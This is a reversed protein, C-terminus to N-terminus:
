APHQKPRFLGSLRSTKKLETTAYVGILKGDQMDPHFVVYRGSGYEVKIKEGRSLLQANKEDSLMNLVETRVTDTRFYSTSSKHIKWGDENIIYALSVDKRTNDIIRSIYEDRATIAKILTERDSFNLLKNEKRLTQITKELESKQYSINQIQEYANDEKSGYEQHTISIESALELVEGEVDELRGELNSAHEQLSNNKQQSQQLRRKLVEKSIITRNLQHKKSKKARKLVFEAIRPHSLLWAIRDYNM